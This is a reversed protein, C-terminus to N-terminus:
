NSTKGCFQLDTLPLTFHRYACSLVRTIYNGPTPLLLRLALGCGRARDLLGTGIKFVLQLIVERGFGALLHFLLGLIDKARHQSTVAPNAVLATLDFVNAAFAGSRSSM